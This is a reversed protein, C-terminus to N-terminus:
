AAEEETGDQAHAMGSRAAGEKRTEPEKKRKKGSAKKRTSLAGKRVRRRWLRTKRGRKRGLIM